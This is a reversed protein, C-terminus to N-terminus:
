SSASWLADFTPALVPWWIRLHATGWRVECDRVICLAWRGCADTREDSTETDSDADTATFTVIIAVTYLGDDAYYIQQTHPIRAYLPKM